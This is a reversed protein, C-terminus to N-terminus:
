IVIFSYIFHINFFFFSHLFSFFSLFHTAFKLLNEFLLVVNASSQKLRRQWMKAVDDTHKRLEEKKKRQSNILTFTYRFLIM